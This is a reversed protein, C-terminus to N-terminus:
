YNIPTTPAGAPPTDPGLITKSWQAPVIQNQNPSEDLYPLAGLTITDGEGYPIQLGYRYYGEVMWCPTGGLLRSPVAGSVWGDLYVENPCGMDRSPIIPPLGRRKSIWRIEVWGSPACPRVVDAPTGPPGQIINLALGSADHIVKSIAYEFYKGRQVLVPPPPSTLDPLTAYIVNPGDPDDSVAPLNGVAGSAGPANAFTTPFPPLQSM